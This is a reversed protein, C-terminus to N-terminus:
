ARSAMAQQGFSSEFDAPSRVAGAHAPLDLWLATVNGLLFKRDESFLLIGIKEPVAQPSDTQFM